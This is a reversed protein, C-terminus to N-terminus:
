PKLAAIGARAVQADQASTGGSVGVSGIVDGDVIVPEGGELMVLGEVTLLAGRGASISEDLSKTPRRFRAATRAKGRAIDVSSMPADDMRHLVIPEGAADAVVITLKWGNNRAEVEAAAAISKAGELTIIKRTATQASLPAIITSSISMIGAIALTRLIM